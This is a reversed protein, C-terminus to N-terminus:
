ITSEVTPFGYFGGICHNEISQKSLDFDNVCDLLGVHLSFMLTGIECDLHLDYSYSGPRALAILEYIIFAM